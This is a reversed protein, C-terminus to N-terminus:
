FGFRPSKARPPRSKSTDSAVGIIVETGEQVEGSVVETSTGDTL